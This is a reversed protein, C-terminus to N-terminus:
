GANIIATKNISSRSITQQLEETYLLYACHSYKNYM